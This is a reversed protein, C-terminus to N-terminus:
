KWFRLVAVEGALAVLALLVFWKWISSQRAMAQVLDHSAFDDAELVATAEFGAEKFSKAVTEKDVFVMESEMRSENWAMVHYVSDHVALAYFGADPLDDHLFVIMRNNRLEHAPMMVFSGDENRIELTGDGENDLDNFVLTKDVGLVYFLLSKASSFLVHLILTPAPTFSILWM